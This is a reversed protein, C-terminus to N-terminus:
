GLIASLTTIHIVLVALRTNCETHHHLHFVVSRCLESASCCLAKAVSKSLREQPTGPAPHGKPGRRRWPPSLGTSCMGRAPVAQWRWAWRSEDPSNRAVTQWWWLWMSEYPSDMAVTQWWWAWRSEHPSDRAVTQWWWVWRSEHHSDRAVTQWWWAWRSEHPSDRALVLWRLTCAMTLYRGDEPVQWRWSGAMTMCRGRVHAPKRNCPM